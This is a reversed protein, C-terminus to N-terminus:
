LPYTRNLDASHTPGLQTCSCGNGSMWICVGSICRSRSVAAAAQPTGLHAAEAAAHAVAGAAIDVVRDAMFSGETDIYIATAGLGGLAMPLQANVALQIRSQCFYAHPSDSCVTSPNKRTPQMAPRHCWSGAQVLCQLRTAIGHTHQWMTGCHACWLLRPGVFDGLQREM